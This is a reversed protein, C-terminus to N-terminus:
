GNLNYWWEKFGKRFGYLYIDHSLSIIGGVLIGLVMLLMIILFIWRIVDGGNLADVLTFIGWLALGLVALAALVIFVVGAMGLVGLAAARIVRVIKNKPQAM